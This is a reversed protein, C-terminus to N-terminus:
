RYRGNLHSCRNCKMASIEAGLRINRECVYCLHKEIELGYVCMCM